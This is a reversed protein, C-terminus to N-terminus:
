AALLGDLWRPVDAASARWRPPPRHMHALSRVGEVGSRSSRRRGTLMEFLICGLAYIDARHDITAAHRPVARPVHVDPTGLLTGTRTTDARRRDAGLLKAIGFDLVKVREGGPAGIPSPLHERAQPRPPRDGARARRRAREAVQAAIACRRRALALRAARRAARALTEGELYEMVIYARGDADVGCDFVEVIGPHRILSTARAENFFRQLM